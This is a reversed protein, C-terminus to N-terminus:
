LLRAFARFIVAEALYVHAIICPKVKHNNCTPTSLLPLHVSKCFRNSLGGEPFHDGSVTFDKERLIRFVEVFAEKRGDMFQLENSSDFLVSKLKGQQTTQESESGWVFSTLTTVVNGLIFYLTIM